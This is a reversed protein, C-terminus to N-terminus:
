IFFALKVIFDWSSLPSDEQSLMLDEVAICWVHDATAQKGSLTGTKHSRKLLSDISRLKWGKDSFENLLRWAGYGKSLCLNKILIEDKQSM